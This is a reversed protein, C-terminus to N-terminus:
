PKLVKGAGVSGVIGTLGSQFIEFSIDKLCCDDPDKLFQLIKSFLKNFYSEM